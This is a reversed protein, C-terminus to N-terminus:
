PRQSWSSSPRTGDKPGAARASGAPASPCPRRLLRILDDDPAQQVLRTCAPCAELHEEIAAVDAAELRGLAFGELASRDPHKAARHEGVEVGWFSEGLGCRDM